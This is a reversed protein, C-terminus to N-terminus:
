NEEDKRGRVSCAKVFRRRERKERLAGVWGRGLDEVLMAVSKGRSATPFKGLHFSSIAPQSSFRDCEANTLEMKSEM